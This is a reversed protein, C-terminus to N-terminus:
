PPLLEFADGGVEVRDGPEVYARQIRRGDVLTGTRSALDEVVYGQPTLVVLCHVDDAAEGLTVDCHEAKGFTIEKKLFVRPERDGTTLLRIAIKRRDDRPSTM